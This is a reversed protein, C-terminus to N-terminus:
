FPLQDCEDKSHGKEKCIPCSSSLDISTFTPKQKEKNEDWEKRIKMDEQIDFMTGHSLSIKGDKYEHELHVSGFENYCTWKDVKKGDKYNGKYLHDELYKYEETYFGNKPEDDSKVKESNQNIIKGEEYEHELHISGDENYYTWKGEQKNNKNLGTYKIKGNKFYGTVKDEGEQRVEGTEYYIFNNIREGNEDVVNKQELIGNEYFEVIKTGDSQEESFTGTNKIFKEIKDDKYIIKYYITGDKFSYTWEGNKKGDNYNGKCLIGEVDNHKETFIGNKPGENSKVKKGDEYFTKRDITGDPNYNIYSGNYKGNKSTYEINVQGNDYYSLQLGDEKGNKMNFDMFKKGNELYCIWKGDTMGEKYNLIEEIQGNIYYRIWEGHKKGNKYNGKKRVQDNDYYSIWEGDTRHEKKEEVLDGKNYIVESELEGNSDYYFSKGHLEGNVWMQKNLLKGTYHDCTIHEGERLGNKYPYRSIVNGKTDYFLHEGEEKGDKFMGSHRVEGNSYYENCEGHKKDNKYNYLSYSGDDEYDTRILGNKKNNKKFYDFIGMM